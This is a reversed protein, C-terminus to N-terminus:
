RQVLGECREASAADCHDCRYVHWGDVLHQFPVIADCHACIHYSIGCARCTARAMDAM